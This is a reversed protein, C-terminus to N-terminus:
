EITLVKSSEEGFQSIVRVCIKRGPAREIASSRFDYLTEWVEDNLELNLTTEARKKTKSSAISNLGKRWAEFEKKNGGCFHIERGMNPDFGAVENLYIATEVAERQCFFLKQYNQREPNDFWFTLLERTVRTVKPYGSERWNKVEERITNIFPANPDEDAIDANSFLAAEVRNPAVGIHASYPRRGQLIKNYDLNGNLDADYHLRPKEYPNNLIPSLNEKM